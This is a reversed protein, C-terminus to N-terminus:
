STQITECRRSCKVVDVFANVSWKLFEYVVLYRDDLVMESVAFM